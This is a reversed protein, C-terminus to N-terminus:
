QYMYWIALGINNECDTCMISHQTSEERYCINLGSTSTFNWWFRSHNVQFHKRRWIWPFNLADLRFLFTLDTADSSHIGDKVLHRNLSFVLWKPTKKGPQLLNYDGWCGCQWAIITHTITHYWLPMKQTTKDSFLLLKGSGFISKKVNNLPGEHKEDM